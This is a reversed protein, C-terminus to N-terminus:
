VTGTIQKTRELLAPTSLEQHRGGHSYKKKFLGWAKIVQGKFEISQAEDEFNVQHRNTKSVYPNFARITKPNPKEAWPLKPASEDDRQLVDESNFDIVSIVPLNENSRTGTGLEFSYGM